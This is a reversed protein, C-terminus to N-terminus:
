GVKILEWLESVGNASTFYDFINRYRDVDSLERLSKSVWLSEQGALRSPSGILAM